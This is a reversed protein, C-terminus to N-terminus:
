ASPILSEVELLKAERAQLNCKQQDINHRIQAIHQREENLEKRNQEILLLEQRREIKANNVERMMRSWVLQVDWDEIISPNELDSLSSHPQSQEFEEEEQTTKIVDQNKNIRNINIDPEINIQMEIEPDKILSHLGRPEPFSSDREILNVSDAAPHNVSTATTTAAAVNTATTITATSAATSNVVKNFFFSLPAGSNKSDPEPKPGDGYHPINNSSPSGNCITTPTGINIVTCQLPTQTKLPIQVEQEKEPTLSLSVQSQTQGSENLQSSPESNSHQQQRKWDQILHTITAESIRMKQSNLIRAIDNRGHGQLHLDMAKKKVENNITM